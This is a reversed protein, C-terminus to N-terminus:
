TLARVESSPITLIYVDEIMIESIGEECLFRLHRLSISQSLIFSILRESVWFIVSVSSEQVGQGVIGETPVNLVGNMDRRMEQVEGVSVGEWKTRVVMERWGNAAAESRPPPPHLFEATGDGQAVLEQAPDKTKLYAEYMEIAEQIGSARVLTEFHSDDLFNVIPALTCILASATPAETFSRSQVITLVPEDGDPVTALTFATKMRELVEPYHDLVNGVEAMMLNFRMKHDSLGRWCEQLPWPSVTRRGREKREHERREYEKRKKDVASFHLFICATFALVHVVCM